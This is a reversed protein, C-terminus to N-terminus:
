LAEAQPMKVPAEALLEAYLDLTARCMREVTFEALVHARAARAMQQRQEATLALASRIAQALAGADCPAVLWGTLGPRVTERAGGHDTAIVPRGMAEAEVAVRGFAEPDTSASIVVDALMYAAPMDECHGVLRICGEPVLTAIADELERRYASRGPDAGVLVAGAPAKGLGAVLRRM